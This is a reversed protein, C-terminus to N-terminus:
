SRGESWPAFRFMGPGPEKEALRYGMARTRFYDERTYPMAGSQRLAPQFVRVGQAELADRLGGLALRKGERRGIIEVKGGSM